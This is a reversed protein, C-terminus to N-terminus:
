PLAPDKVWQALGSISGVVERISSPNTEVTGCHSSPFSQTRASRGVLTGGDRKEGEPRETGQSM